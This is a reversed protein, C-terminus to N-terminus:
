TRTPPLWPGLLQAVGNQRPSQPEAARLRLKKMQLSCTCSIISEM